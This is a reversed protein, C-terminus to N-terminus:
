VFSNVYIQAEIVRPLKLVHVKRLHINYYYPVGADCHDNSPTMSIIDPSTCCSTWSSIVTIVSRLAIIDKNWRVSRSVHLYLSPLSSIMLDCVINRQQERLLCNAHLIIEKLDQTLNYTFIPWSINLM